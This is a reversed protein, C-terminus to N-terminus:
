QEITSMNSFDVHQMELSYSAIIVEKTIIVYKKYSFYKIKRKMMLKCVHVAPYLSGQAPWNKWNEAARM